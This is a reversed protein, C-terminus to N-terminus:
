NKIAMIIDVYKVSLDLTGSISVGITGFPHTHGGGTGTAGTYAVSPAPGAPAQYAPNAMRSYYIANVPSDAAATMTHTHAPLTTPGLTTSGTTLGSFPATGTITRSTFVSNFSSWGAAAHSIGGTGAVVRLAHDNYNAVEKTWGVPATDGMFFTRTGSAFVAM